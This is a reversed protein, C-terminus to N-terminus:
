NKFMPYVPIHEIAHKDDQLQQVGFAEVYIPPDLFDNFIKM